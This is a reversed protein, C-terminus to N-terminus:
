FRVEKIEDIRILKNEQGNKATSRSVRVWDADVDEVTFEYGLGFGKEIIMVKKGVLDELLKSMESEGEGRELRKVKSQLRNLTDAHSLVVVVLCLCILLEM